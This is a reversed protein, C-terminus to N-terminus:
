ANSGAIRSERNVDERRGDIQRRVTKRGDQRRFGTEQRRTKPRGNVTSREGLARLSLSQTGNVCNVRGRNEWDRMVLDRM